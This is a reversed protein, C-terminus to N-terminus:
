LNATKLFAAEKLGISGFFALSKIEYRGM